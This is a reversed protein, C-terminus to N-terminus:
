VYIIYIYSNEWKIKICGGNGSYFLIKVPISILFLILWWYIIFLMMELWSIIFLITELRLYFYVSQNMHVKTSIFNEIEKFFLNESRIFLVVLQPTEQLHIWWLSLASLLARASFTNVEPVLKNSENYRHNFFILVTISRYEVLKRLLEVNSLYIITKDSINIVIHLINIM